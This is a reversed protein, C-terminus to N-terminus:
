NDKDFYYDSNFFRFTPLNYNPLKINKNYKNNSFKLM